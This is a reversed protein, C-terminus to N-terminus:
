KNMIWIYRGALACPAPPSTIFSNVVFILCKRLHKINSVAVLQLGFVVCVFVSRCIHKHTHTPPPPPSTIPRSTLHLCYLFFFFCVGDAPLFNSLFCLWLLPSSGGLFFCEQTQSCVCACVFVCVPQWNASVKLSVIWVRVGVACFHM